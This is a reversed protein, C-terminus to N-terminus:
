ASGFRLQIRMGKIGSALMPTNSYFDIYHDHELVADVPGVDLLGPALRAEDGGAQARVCGGRVSSRAQM